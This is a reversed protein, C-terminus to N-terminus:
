AGVPRQCPEGIGAQDPQQTETYHDHTEKISLKENVRKIVELRQLHLKKQEELYDGIPNDLNSCLCRATYDIRLKGNKTKYFYYVHEGSEGFISDILNIYDEHNWNYNKEYCFADLKPKIKEMNNGLKYKLLDIYTYKHFVFDRISDVIFWIFFLGFMGLVIFASFM